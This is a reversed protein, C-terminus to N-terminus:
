YIYCSLSLNVNLPQSNSTSLTLSQAHSSSLKFCSPSLNNISIPLPLLWFLTHFCRSHLTSTGSSLVMHHNQEVVMTHSISLALTQPLYPLRILYLSLVIKLYLPCSNSTSPALTHSIYLSCSNSTSLALTQHLPPSPALMQIQPSLPSYNHHGLPVM